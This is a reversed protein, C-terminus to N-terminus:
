LASPLRAALSTSFLLLPMGIPTAAHSLAPCLFVGIIASIKNHVTYKEEEREDEDDEDDPDVPAPVAETIVASGLAEKDKDTLWM